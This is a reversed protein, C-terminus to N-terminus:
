VASPQSRSSGVAMEAVTLQGFVLSAAVMLGALMKILGVLFPVVKGRALYYV